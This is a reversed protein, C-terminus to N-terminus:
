SFPIPTQESPQKNKRPPIKKHELLTIFAGFVSPAVWFVTFWFLTFSVSNAPPINYLSLLAVLTADRTGVGHISIPIAAVTASIAFMFFLTIYPVTISFLQAIFFLETFFVVYSTFSILFPLWLDKFGPLDEYFTQMQDDMYHQITQFIKTNLLKEFLQKSKKQRLFFIFIVTVSILFIISILLLYPYRGLLFVGGISSLIFLAILDITNLVLINSVCKPLPTKSEERLYFARLYNGFGGPTIFGYFYGIFYNKLSYWFRVQIHQKRLLIQWELNIVLVYPIFSLFALIIYFPHITSFVSIIKDVDSKWLVYILLIIGAIPLIKKWDM